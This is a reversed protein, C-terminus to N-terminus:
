AGVPRGEAAAVSARRLKSLLRGAANVAAYYEKAFGPRIATRMLGVTSPRGGTTCSSGRRWGRICIWIGRPCDSSLDAQRLGLPQLLSQKIFGSRRRVVVQSKAGHRTAAARRQEVVAPTVRYAMVASEVSRFRIAWGFCGRGNIACGCGVCVGGLLFVCM